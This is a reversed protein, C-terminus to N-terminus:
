GFFAEARARVVDQLTTRVRVKTMDEKRKLDFLLHYVQDYGLQRIAGEFERSQQGGGPCVSRHHYHISHVDEFGIGYTSLIDKVLSKASHQQGKVLVVSRKEPNSARVYGTEHVFGCPELRIVASWETIFHLCIPNMSMLVIKGAWPAMRDCPQDDRHYHVEKIHEYPIEDKEMTSIKMPWQVVQNEIEPSVTRPMPYVGADCLRFSIAKMGGLKSVYPLDPSM